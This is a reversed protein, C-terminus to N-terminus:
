DPFCDFLVLDFVVENNQRVALLGDGKDLVEVGGASAPGGRKM